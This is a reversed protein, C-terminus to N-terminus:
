VEGRKIRGILVAGVGTRPMMEHHLEDLIRDVQEALFEQTVPRISMIAYDVIKELRVRVVEREEFSGLHTEIISEAQPGDHIHEAM